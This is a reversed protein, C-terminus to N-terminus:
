RQFLTLLQPIRLVTPKIAKTTKIMNANQKGFRKASLLNTAMEHVAELLYSTTARPASSYM